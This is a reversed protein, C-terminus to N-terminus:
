RLNQSLGRLFGNFTDFVYQLSNYLRSMDTLAAENEPKKLLVGLKEGPVDPKNLKPNWANKAGAKDKNAECFAKHKTEFEKQLHGWLLEFWHQRASATILLFRDTNFFETMRADMGEAKRWATFQTDLTKVLPTVDSTPNNTAAHLYTKASTESMTINKPAGKNLATDGLTTDKMASIVRLGQGKGLHAVLGACMECPELTTYLTAGDPLTTNGQSVFNCLTNVEAHRWKEHQNTNVGWSLVTGDKDVLLSAINKGYHSSARNKEHFSAGGFAQRAIEMTLFMFFQDRVGQDNLLMAMPADEVNAPVEFRQFAKLDSHIKFSGSLADPLKDSSTVAPPTFSGLDLARPHKHDSIFRILKNDLSKYFVEKVGYLRAMGKCMESAPATSLIIAGDTETVDLYHLLTCIPSRLAGSGPDFAPSTAAAIVKSGKICVAVDLTPFKVGKFVYTSALWEKSM